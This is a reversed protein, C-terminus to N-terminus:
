YTTMQVRKQFETEELSGKAAQDIDAKKARLTLLTRGATHTGVIPNVPQDGSVDQPQDQVASPGQVLVTLWSDPELDRINTAHRLAATLANKLGEVAEPKYSEGDPDSRHARATGRPDVLERQAAAWVQDAPEATKDPKPMEPPAVLPFKVTLSFLVGYGGIYVSKPRGSSSRLISPWRDGGQWSSVYGNLQLMQLAGVERRLADYEYLEPADTVSKEIIRNMISLDEVIRDYTEPTMEKAPIVLVPAAARRNASTLGSLRSLSQGASPRITTTVPALADASPPATSAMAAPALSSAPASTAQGASASGSYAPRACAALLLLLTIKPLSM